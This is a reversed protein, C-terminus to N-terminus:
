RGTLKVPDLTTRQVKAMRMTVSPIAVLHCNCCTEKGCDGFDALLKAEDRAGIQRLEVQTQFEAVLLRLLERFDVRRDSLYYVIVREGGFLREFEVVTMELGLRNVIEKCVKWDRRAQEAVQNLDHADAATLVRLIKGEPADPHAAYAADNAEALVTAAELGRETQAVVRTGRCYIATGPASFLGLIRMAGFRVVYNPM